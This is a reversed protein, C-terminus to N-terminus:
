INKIVRFWESNIKSVGKYQLDTLVWSGLMFWIYPVKDSRIQVSMLNVDYPSLVEILIIRKKGPIYQLLM